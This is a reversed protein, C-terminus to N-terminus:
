FQFYIYPQTELSAVRKILLGLAVLAMARVPTPLWV